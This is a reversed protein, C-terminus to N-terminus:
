LHPVETYCNFDTKIKIEPEAGTEAGAPEMWRKAWTADRRVIGGM